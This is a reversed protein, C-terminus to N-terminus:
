APEKEKDPETEAEERKALAMAEGKTLPEPNLKVGEIVDFKGFGISVIYRQGSGRPDAPWTELKGARILEKHNRLARIQDGSLVIGPRIVEGNGLTILRRVTGGGITESRVLAM